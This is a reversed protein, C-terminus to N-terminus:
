FPKDKLYSGTPIHGLRTVRHAHAAALRAMNATLARPSQPSRPTFEPLSFFRPGTRQSDGAGLGQGVGEDRTGWGKLGLREARGRM